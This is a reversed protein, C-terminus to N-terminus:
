GRVSGGGEPPEGVKPEPLKELEDLTGQEDTALLKGNLVVGGPGSSDRYATGGDVWEDDTALADKTLYLARAAVGDLLAAEIVILANRLRISEKSSQGIVEVVRAEAAEVREAAEELGERRSQAMAAAIIDAAREMDGTLGIVDAVARAYDIAIPKAKKTM